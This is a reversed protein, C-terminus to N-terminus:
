LCIHDCVVLTDTLHNMKHLSIEHAFTLYKCKLQKELLNIRYILYQMLCYLAQIYNKLFSWFFRFM